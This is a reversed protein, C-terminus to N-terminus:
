SGLISVPLMQFAFLYEFGCFNDSIRFMSIKHTFYRLSLVQIPKKTGVTPVTGVEDWYPDPNLRRFSHPGPDSVSNIERSRIIKKRSFGNQEQRTYIKM